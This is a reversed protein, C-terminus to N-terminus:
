TPAPLSASTGWTPTSSSSAAAPRLPTRLLSTSTADERRISHIVGARKSRNKAAASRAELIPVSLSSLSARRLQLQHRAIHHFSRDITASSHVSCLPAPPLCSSRFPTQSRGVAHLSLSPAPPERPEVASHALGM